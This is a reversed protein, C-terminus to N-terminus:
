HRPLADPRLGDLPLAAALRALNAAASGVQGAPLPDLAGSGVLAAAHAALQDLREGMLRRAVAGDEPLAVHRGLVFTPGANLGNAGSPMRCIAEGLPKLVTIMLEIACASATRAAAHDDTAFAHALAQLMLVYADDFVDMAHIAAPDTVQTVLIGARAFGPDDEVQGVHHGSRVFPNDAVPLAVDDPMRRIEDLIATFVGFHSDERDAATGEGQETIRDIAALASATDTVEVIDHFDIAATGRQGSRPTVFLTGEDSQAIIRAIERYLEGVHLFDFGEDIPWLVGGAFAASELTVDGPNEYVLFRQLTAEDFRRLSLAVNLSFHRAPQPFPPRDYYPSGGFARMLNWAQALHLMEQAAIHYVRSAWRRAIQQQRWDLGDAVDRKLSFAAYLYSCCLAHELECAEALLALLRSRTTEGTM